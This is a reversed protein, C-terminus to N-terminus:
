YGSLTSITPYRKRHTMCKDREIFLSNTKCMIDKELAMRSEELHSLSGRAESLQQHLSALTADIQRVEGELSLQPEDRCLEMNPRLSRLYLRSQAVRLPAEKNHIAQQLAVINKEQAGIQELTQTLKMELQTKAEILEGCRQSFAQDVSSCQVRLDDTTDLLVQEVLLRLSHTAHEEQLAKSLNDQTFKTWSTHNCMQDQVTASSPHHRTDPSMNTYRGSLDDFNYAQYKDSWDMELMQKAERNMKIQSVVQTTTRKLLAQISRILDVEKLLEEEVTDRVLDPGLRRTRCNLNDTAIAYPTETADLAKELRTKLALLSETDALLQEIHRQLESRWHHIKQLREGLHCTGEAQTRLTATETDQYLTKSGRQIRRAEHQDSGAQQLISHYKSFWEAPTYKASRYGATASGSSPQPVEPEVPPEKEPVGQAVARSDFHPRSVLVEWSM